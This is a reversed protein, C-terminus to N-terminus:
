CLEQSLAQLVSSEIFRTVDSYVEEDDVVIPEPSADATSCCSSVEGCRAKLEDYVEKAPPAMRIAIAGDDGIYWATRLNPSIVDKHIIPITDKDVFEHLADIRRELADYNCRGSAFGEKYWERPHVNSTILVFKSIFRVSGGKTEVHLPYRDLINLLQNFPLWGYFDDIVVSEQGNYGDWWQGHPKWYVTRGETMEACQRSKGTGPAGYFVAVQTKEKRDGQHAFRYVEFARYHKVWSKFDYDAIDKM